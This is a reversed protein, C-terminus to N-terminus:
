LSKCTEREMLPNHMYECFISEEQGQIRLIVAGTLMSLMASFDVRFTTLAPRMYRSMYADDVAIVSIDEPIRIGEKQLAQITGFAIHDNACFIATPLEAGSDLFEKIVKESVGLYFSAQLNWNDRIELKHRKMAELFFHKKNRGDFRFQDGHIGMIKRHGLKVLYDVARSACQEEFNVIVRNEEQEEPPPYDILGIIFGKQILEEVLPENDRCGLFIGGNIRGQMFVDRIETLALEDHNRIIMTLTLFGMKAAADVVSALMRDVIIDETVDYSDDRQLMFFLGLTDVSKGALTRAAQNPTYGCEKIVKWVKDQTEKSIDGYHNIVKSVTSRSVGAKKAVEESKICFKGQKINPGGL